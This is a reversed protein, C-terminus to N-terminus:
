LSERRLAVPGSTGAAAGLICHLGVLAASAPSLSTAARVCPGRRKVVPGGATGAAAAPASRSGRAARGPATRGQLM